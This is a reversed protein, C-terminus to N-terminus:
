STHILTLFSYARPHRAPMLAFVQPLGAAAKRKKIAAKDLGAALDRELEALAIAAERATSYAKTSHKKDITYGQYEVKKSGQGGRVRRYGNTGGLVLKLDGHREHRSIVVEKVRVVM